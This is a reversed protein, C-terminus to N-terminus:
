RAPSRGRMSTCRRTVETFLGKKLGAGLVINLLTAHNNASLTQKRPRPSRFMLMYESAKQQAPDDRLLRAFITPHPANVIVLKDLM